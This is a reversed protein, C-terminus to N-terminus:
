RKLKVTPRMWLRESWLLHSEQQSANLTPLPTSLMGGDSEPFTHTLVQDMDGGTKRNGTPLTTRQGQVLIKPGIVLKTIPLVPM